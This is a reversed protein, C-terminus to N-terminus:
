LQQQLIKNLRSNASEVSNIQDIILSLQNNKEKLQIGKKNNQVHKLVASFAKSEYYKQQKTTFKAVM